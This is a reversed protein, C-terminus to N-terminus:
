GILERVLGGFDERQWHKLFVTYVSLCNRAPDAADPWFMPDRAGEAETCEPLRFRIIEPFALVRAVGMAAMHLALHRKLDALALRPGGHAAYEDLFLALLSDLHHDWIDHHAASLGGWLASGFTIQGVRGWDILGCHLGADDRWFWCNDIHSNWHNLAIMAPDAVLFARIKAENERILHAENRLRALFAPDRVEPPMLRPCDRGFAACRDLEADLEAASYAILDASGTVADWPFRAEIDSALAGSKHAGALRALATVTARYYPLPDAMTQWDLCKRRHPEIAGQGYAVCETIVVGTGSDAHYDAFYGAPVRIPFGSQRSLAVFRAEGAMETRQWDRRDDDFDRSFKLFLTRELGSEPRAYDLTLFFKQGTSGGSCPEVAAIRTVANDHALAGFRQFAQTLFPAGAAMLADLHAPIVMGTADGTVFDLREAM